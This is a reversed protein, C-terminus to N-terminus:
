LGRPPFLFNSGVCFYSREQVNGPGQAPKNQRPECARVPRRRQTQHVPSKTGRPKAPEKWPQGQQRRTNKEYNRHTREEEQRTRANQQARTHEPTTRTRRARPAAHNRPRSRRAGITGRAKAHERPEAANDRSTNADQNQRYGIFSSYPYVNCMSTLKYLGDAYPM